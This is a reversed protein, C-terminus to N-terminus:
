LDAMKDYMSAGGWSLVWDNTWAGSSTMSQLGAIHLVKSTSNYSVGKQPISAGNLMVPGPQSTVGM